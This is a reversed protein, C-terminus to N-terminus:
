PMSTQSFFTVISCQVVRILKHLQSLSCCYCTTGPVQKETQFWTLYVLNSRSLVCYLKLLDRCKKISLSSIFWGYFLIAVSNHSILVKINLSVEKLLFFTICVYANPQATICVPLVPYLLFYPNAAKKPYVKFKGWGLLYSYIFLWRRM